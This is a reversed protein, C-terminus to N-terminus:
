GNSRDAPDRQWWLYALVVAAVMMGMVGALVVDFVKNPLVPEALLHPEAIVPTSLELAEQVDLSDLQAEIDSVRTFLTGSEQELQGVERLARQSGAIDATNAVIPALESLRTSIQKLRDQSVSLDKELLTKARIPGSDHVFKVYSDVIKKVLALGREPDTDQLEVRIIESGGVIKVSLRKEVDRLKLGEESTIPELNAWNRIQEIHTLLRRDDRLFGSSRDQDVPFILDARAAYVPARLFTVALGAIVAALVIVAGIGLLRFEYRIGGVSRQRLRTASGTPIRREQAPNGRLPAAVREAAGSVASPAKTPPAPATTAAAQPAAQEAEGAGRLAAIVHRIDGSPATPDLSAPQATGDGERAPDNVPTGGAAATSPQGTAATERATANSQAVGNSAPAVDAPPTGSEAAGVFAQAPTVAKLLQDPM